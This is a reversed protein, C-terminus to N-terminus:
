PPSCFTPYRSSIVSHQWEYSEREHRRDVLIRRERIPRQLAAEVLVLWKSLAFGCPRLAGWIRDNRSASQPAFAAMREQKIIKAPGYHLISAAKIPMTPGSYHDPESTVTTTRGDRDLRDM